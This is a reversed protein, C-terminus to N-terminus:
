ENCHVYGDSGGLYDAKRRRPQDQTTKVPATVYPVRSKVRTCPRGPRSCFRHHLELSPRAAESRSIELNEVRLQLRCLMVHVELASLHDQMTSQKKQLQEVVPESVTILQEFRNAQGLSSGICWHPRLTHLAMTQGIVAKAM